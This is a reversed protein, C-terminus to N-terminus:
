RADAVRSALPGRRRLRAELNDLRRVYEVLVMPQEDVLREALNESENLDNVVDFFARLRPKLRLLFKVRMDRLGATGDRGLYYEWHRQPPEKRLVGLLSVGQPPTDIPVALLEVLTPVIDTTQALAGTLMFPSKPWPNRGRPFKICLPVSVVERHLTEHLYSGHEFFAEGHDATLVIVTQDYLGSQRLGNLLRGIEHDVFAVSAQYSLWVSRAERPALPQGEGKRRAMENLAELYQKGRMSGRGVVGDTVNSASQAGAARRFREPAMYGCGGYDDAAPDGYHVALFFPQGVRRGIWELAADTTEDAQRGPIGPHKPNLWTEGVVDYRDFGREVGSGPGLAEANIFAATRYGADRLVEALTPIDAPLRPGAGTAPNTTRPDLGAGTPYHGTLISAMSALCDNSCTTANLFVASEKLLLDLEPTVKTRGGYLELFDARLSEVAILVVCPQRTEAVAQRNQRDLLALLFFGWCLLGLGVLAKLYKIIRNIARTNHM